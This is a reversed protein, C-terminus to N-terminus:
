DGDVVAVGSLLFNKECYDSAKKLMSRNLAEALRADRDLYAEAVRLRDHALVKLQERSMAGLRRFWAIKWKLSDLVGLVLENDSLSAETALYAEVDRLHAETAKSDFQEILAAARARLAKLADGGAGQVIAESIYVHLATRLAYLDRVTKASVPAVRPRKRATLTVLGYQSLILLAERVPTRSTGFHAALEVSNIPSGPAIAGSVIRDRVSEFIRVVTMDGDLSAEPPTLAQVM